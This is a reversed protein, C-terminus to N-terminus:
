HQSCAIYTCCTHMVNHSASRHLHAWWLTQSVTVQKNPTSPLALQINGWKQQSPKLLTYIREQYGSMCVSTHCIYSCSMTNHPSPHTHTHTSTPLFQSSTFSGNCVVDQNERHMSKNITHITNCTQTHMIPVCAHMTHM